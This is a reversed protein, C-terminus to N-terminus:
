DKKIETFYELEIFRLTDFCFLSIFGTPCRKTAIVGCGSSKLWWWENNILKQAEVHGLTHGCKLPARGQCIRTQGRAMLARNTADTTCDPYFEHIGCGIGTLTWIAIVICILSIYLYQKM